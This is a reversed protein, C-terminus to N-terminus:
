SGPPTRIQGRKVKAIVENLVDSSNEGLRVNIRINAVSPDSSSTIYEIGDAAAIRRQLPDTVFGQVTRASAGPYVARVFIVSKEVDPFQRISLQTAAQGGLMLLLCSVVIALVPRRIFLDTFKM